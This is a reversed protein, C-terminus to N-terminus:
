RRKTQRAEGPGPAPSLVSQKLREATGVIGPFVSGVVDVGMRVANYNRFWWEVLALRARAKQGGAIPAAAVASWYARYMTWVPLLATRRTRTDHWAARDTPRKRSQSYRQGHDRIRLLPEPVRIFRGYRAAEALM